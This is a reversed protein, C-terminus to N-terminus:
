NRTLTPLTFAPPNSNGVTRNDNFSQISGGGSISTAFGNLTLTSGSVRIAASAGSTQLAAGTNNYITSDNVNVVNPASGVVTVVFVGQASGSIAAGQIDVVNSSANTNGTSDVRIADNANGYVHVDQLHVRANGGAGTPQILIGGGTGATGNNVITTRSITLRAAGSPQFSVGRGSAAQFNQIICDEITLSAGQIFRVGNIGPLTPPAGQITLGRLIVNVNAGNVLVGTTGSALISGLTGTCDLTISKTINIAGFGGPDLCDIEGGAATRSIAGAFTKCPATRSCPNADDGVGSVWTRTAQASAPATGLACFAFMAAAFIATIKSIKIM